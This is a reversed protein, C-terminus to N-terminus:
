RTGPKPTRFSEIPADEKEPYGIAEIDWHWGQPSRHAGRTPVTIRDSFYNGPRLPMGLPHRLTVRSATVPQGDATLVRLVIDVHEMPLHTTNRYTFDVRVYEWDLGGELAWDRVTIEGAGPFSWTHEEHDNWRVAAKQQELKAWAREQDAGAARVEEAERAQAVQPSLCATPLPVALLTAVVLASRLDLLTSTM